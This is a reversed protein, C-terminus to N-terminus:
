CPELGIRCVDKHVLGSIAAPLIRKGADSIPLVIIILTIDGHIMRYRSQAKSRPLPYFRAAHLTAHRSAIISLTLASRSITRRLRKRTQHSIYMLTRTCSAWEKTLERHCNLKAQHAAIMLARAHNRQVEGSERGSSRFLM